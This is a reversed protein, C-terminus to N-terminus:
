NMRRGGDVNIAQGTINHADDSALFATLKGIDEPTQEKQMPIGLEIVKEFRERGTLGELAQNDYFDPRGILQEFLPTWLLGPCIANVNIQYPALQLAHSQTWSVVGAKSANYHPISPGGQRSAISAINVIKGQRREKMGDEVAQSINVVGRLNIALVADWDDESPVTREWWGGAGGVGANNVVIDIQGLQDLLDLVVSQASARNTVDLQVSQSKGGSGSIEESALRAGDPDIDSLVVNAGQEALVKSIGKGIGSAAGTVLANKNSLDIMKFEGFHTKDLKCAAQTSDM